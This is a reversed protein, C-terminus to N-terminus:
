SEIKALTRSARQLFWDTQIVQNLLHAELDDAPSYSEFCVSELAKFQDATEEGIILTETSCGATSSPM